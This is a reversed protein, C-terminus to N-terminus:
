AEETRVASGPLSFSLFLSISLSLSLLSLPLAKKKQRFVHSCWLCISSPPLHNQLINFVTMFFAPITESINLSSRSTPWVLVMKLRRWSWRWESRQSAALFVIPLLFRHPTLMLSFYFHHLPHCCKLYKVLWM